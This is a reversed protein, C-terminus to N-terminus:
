NRLSSLKWTSRLYQSFRLDHTRVAGLLYCIPLSLYPNGLITPKGLLGM